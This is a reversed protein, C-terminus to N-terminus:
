ASILVKKKHAYFRLLEYYEFRKIPPLITFIVKGGAERASIEVSRSIKDIEEISLQDIHRALSMTVIEFLPYYINEAGLLASIQTEDIYTQIVRANQSIDQINQIVGDNDRAFTFVLAGAKIKNELSGSERAPDFSIVEIKKLFDGYKSDRKLDDIVDFIAIAKKAYGGGLCSDFALVVEPGERYFSFIADTFANALAEDGSAELLRCQIEVKAEKELGPMPGTMGTATNKIEAPLRIEGSGSKGTSGIEGEDKIGPSVSLITQRLDVRCEDRIYITEYKSERDDCAKIIKMFLAEVSHATGAIGGTMMATIIYGDEATKQYVPSGCFGNVIGSGLLLYRLNGNEISHMIGVQNIGTWPVFFGAKGDHPASFQRPTLYSQRANESIETIEIIAVDPTEGKLLAVVRGRGIMKGIPGAHNRLEIEADPDFINHASTMLYKGNIPIANSPLSNEGTFCRISYFSEPAIDAEQAGLSDWDIASIADIISRRHGADQTMYEISDAAIEPTFVGLISAMISLEMTERSVGKVLLRHIKRWFDKREQLYIEASYKKEPIRPKATEKDEPEQDATSVSDRRTESIDPTVRAIANVDEPEGNTQQITKIYQLNLFSHLATAASFIILFAPPNSAYFLFAAANLLAVFFVGRWRPPSHITKAGLWAPLYHAVFFTSWVLGTILISSFIMNETGAAYILGANLAGFVAQEIWSQLKLSVGGKVLLGSLAPIMAADPGSGPRTGAPYLGDIIGYHLPDMGYPAKYPDRDDIRYIEIKQAETAGKWQPLNASAPIDPQLGAPDSSYQCERTVTVCDCHKGARHRELPLLNWGKSDRVTNIDEVMGNIWPAPDADTYKIEMVAIGPWARVFGINDELRDKPNLLLPSMEGDIEQWAIMRSRVNMDITIRLYELDRDHIKVEPEEGPHRHKSELIQRLYVGCSSDLITQWYNAPHGNGGDEILHEYRAALTILHRKLMDRREERGEDENGINQYALREYSVQENLKLKYDRVYSCFEILGARAARNDRQKESLWNYDVVGDHGKEAFALVKPICEQRLHCKFKWMRTDLRNKIELNVVKSEDLNDYWRIRAKFRYERYCDERAFYTLFAPQTTLWDSAEQFPHRIFFKWGKWRYGPTELYGSHNGYVDHTPNDEDAVMGRAEMMDRVFEPENNAIMLRYKDERRFVEFKDNEEAARAIGVRTFHREAFAAVMWFILAATFISFTFISKLSMLYALAYMTVAFKFLNIVVIMPPQKARYRVVASLFRGFPQIVRNFRRIFIGLIFSIAMFYIAGEALFLAVNEAAPWFESWSAAGPVAPALFALGLGISFISIRNLRKIWGRIRAHGNDAGPFLRNTIRLISEMLGSAVIALISVTLGLIVTQSPLSGSLSVILYAALLAPVKGMLRNILYEDGERTKFCKKIATEILAALLMIVIFYAVVNTSHYNGTLFTFCKVAKDYMFDFIPHHRAAYFLPASAVITWKWINFLAGLAASQPRESERIRVKLNRPLVPAVIRMYLRRASFGLNFAGIIQNPIAIVAVAIVYVSLLAIFESRAFISPVGLFLTSALAGLGLALPMFKREIIRKRIPNLKRIFLKFINEFGTAAVTTWAIWSLVTVGPHDSAFSAYLDKAYPLISASTMASLVCEIGMLCAIGISIRTLVFLRPFNTCFRTMIFDYVVPSTVIINVRPSFLGMIYAYANVILSLIILAIISLEAAQMVHLSTVGASFGIFSGAAAPLVPTIWYVTVAVLSVTVLRSVAAKISIWIRAARDDDKTLIQKEKLLPTKKLVFVFLASSVILIKASWIALDIFPKKAEPTLAYIGKVFEIVGSLTFGAGHPAPVGVFVPMVFYLLALACAAIGWWKFIRRVGESHEMAVSSHRVKVEGGPFLVRARLVITDTFFGAIYSSAITLPYTIFVAITVIIKALEIASAWSALPPVGLILSAFFISLPLSIVINQWCTFTQIRGASEKPMHRPLVLLCCVAIMSIVTVLSFALVDIAFYVQSLSGIWASIPGLSHGSLAIGWKKCAFAALLLVLVMGSTLIMPGMGGLKPLSKARGSGLNNEAPHPPGVHRPDLNRKMKSNFGYYARKIASWIIAAISLIFAMPGVPSRSFDSAPSKTKQIHAVVTGPAIEEGEAIIIERSVPRNVRFRYSVKDNFTIWGDEPATITCNAIQEEKSAVGSRLMAINERVHQEVKRDRAINVTLVNETEIRGTEILKLSGKAENLVIRAMELEYLTRNLRILASNWAAKLSELEAPTTASITTASIKVLSNYEDEKIGAADRDIRENSEMNRVLAEAGLVIANAQALMAPYESERYRNLREEAERVSLALKDALAEAELLVGEMERKSTELDAPDLQLIPEGKKVHEKDKKIKKMVRPGIPGTWDYEGTWASARVPVGKDAMAAPRLIGAMPDETFFRMFPQGNNVVCGPGVHTDKAAHEVPLGAVVRTFESSYAVWGDAPAHIESNKMNTTIVGITAQCLNINAQAAKMDERARALGGELSALDQGALGETLLAGNEPGEKALAADALERAARQVTIEESELLARIADVGSESLIGAGRLREARAYDKDALAINDGALGLSEEAHGLMIAGSDSKEALTKTVEAKRAEIIKRQKELGDIRSEADIMARVSVNIQRQLEAIMNEQDQVGAKALLQGEKVPGEPALEILMRGQDGRRGTATPAIDFAIPVGKGPAEVGSASGPERGIDPMIKLVPGPPLTGGEILRPVRDVSIGLSNLPMDYILSVKGDSPATIRCKNREEEYFEIERRGTAGNAEALLLRERATEIEQNLTAIVSAHESEVRKVEAERSIMRARALGERHLATDVGMFATNYAAELEEVKTKTIGPDGKVKKLKERAIDAIREASLRANKRADYVKQSRTLDDKAQELLGPYVSDEYSKLREGAEKLLSDAELLLRASENHRAQAERLLKELVSTELDALPQGKTVHDGDQVYVIRVTPRIIGSGSDYGISVDAGVLASNDAPGDAKGRAASIGPDKVRLFEQGYMITIGPRIDATRPAPRFFDGVVDVHEAVGDRPAYVTCNEINARIADLMELQLALRKNDHGIDGAAAAIMGELEEARKIKMKKRRVLKARDQELSERATAIEIQAEYQARLADNIRLFIGDLETKVPVGKGLYARLRSEETRLLAINRGALEAKKKAAEVAEEDSTVEKRAAEIDIDCQGKFIKLQEEAAQKAEEAGKISLRTRNCLTSQRDLEMEYATSDFRAIVDPSEGNDKHARVSSGDPVVYILTPGYGVINYLRLPKIRCRVSGEQGAPSEGLVPSPSKKTTDDTVRVFPVGPHLIAGQGLILEEQVPNIDIGMFAIRRRNLYSVTGSEGAKIECKGIQEDYFKVEREDISQSEKALGLYKEAARVERDHAAFTAEHAGKVRAVNAEAVAKMYLALELESKAAEEETLAASYAAQLDGIRRPQANNGRAEEFNKHLFVTKERAANLEKERAICVSREKELVAEADQLLAPYTIDRYTSRAEEAKQVSSEARAVDKRSRQLDAEKNRREMTLVSDDLRAVTTVGAIVQTHEPVIYVIPLGVDGQRSSMGTMADSRVLGRDEAEGAPRARGSILAPDVVRLIEQGQVVSVGEEIRTETASQIPVPGASVGVVHSLIVVGDRPAYLTCNKRIMKILADYELHEPQRDLKEGAISEIDDLILGRRKEFAKEDIRAGEIIGELRGTEDAMRDDLLKLEAEGEDIMQRARSHRYESLKQMKEANLRSELAKDYENQTVVGKEKLAKFEEERDKALGAGDKAASVIGILDKGSKMKSIAAKKDEDYQRKATKLEEAALDGLKKAEELLRTTEHYLKLARGLEMERASPDLMGIEQGKRVEARDDILDTIRFRGNGNVSKITVVVPEGNQLAENRGTFDKVLTEVDRYPRTLLDATSSGSGSPEQAPQIRLRPSAEPEAPAVGSQPKHEPIAEVPKPTEPAPVPKPTTVAPPTAGEGSDQFDGIDHSVKDIEQRNARTKGPTAELLGRKDGPEFVTIDDQGHSGSKAAAIARAAQDYLTITEGDKSLGDPIIIMNGNFRALDAASIDKGSWIIRIEQGPKLYADRGNACARLNRRAGGSNSVSFDAINVTNRSINKLHIFDVPDQKGPDREGTQRPLGGPATNEIHAAIATIAIPSDASILQQNISLSDIDAQSVTAAPTPMTEAPKPTEPAPSLVHAQTEPTEQKQSEHPAQSVSAPIEEPASATSLPNSVATKTAITVPPVAHADPSIQIAPAAPKESESPLQVTSQKKIETFQAKSVKLTKTEGAGIIISENLNNVTIDGALELILRGGASITINIDSNLITIMAPKVGTNTVEMLGDNVIRIHTPDILGNVDSRQTGSGTAEYTSGDDLVTLNGSGESNRVSNIKAGEKPQSKEPASAAATSGDTRAADPKAPQVTPTTGSVTEDPIPLAPKIDPLTESRAPRDPRNGTADLNNLMEAARAYSVSLRINAEFYRTKLDEYEELFRRVGRASGMGSIVHDSIIRETVYRVADEKGSLAKELEGTEKLATELDNIILDWEYQIEKLRQAEADERRDHQLRAIKARVSRGSGLIRMSAEYVMNIGGSGANWEGEVSLSPLLTWWAQREQLKAREQLNRLHQVTNDAGMDANENFTRDLAKIDVGLVDQPALFSPDLRVGTEIEIFEVLRAIAETFAMKAETASLKARGLEINAFELEHDSKLGADGSRRAADALETLGNVKAQEADVKMSAIAYAGYLDIARRRASEISIESLIKKDEVDLGAIAPGHIDPEFTLTTKASFTTSDVTPMLDTRGRYYGAGAGLENRFMHAFSALNQAEEAIAIDIRALEDELREGVGAIAGDLGVAGATAEEKPIETEKVGLAYLVIKASSLSSEAEDRANEIRVREAKLRELMDPAPLDDRNRALNEIAKVCRGLEANAIAVQSKALHYLRVASEKQKAALKEAGQLMTDKRGSEQMAINGLIERKEQRAHAGSIFGPLNFWGLAKWDLWYDPLKPYVTGMTGALAFPSVSFEIGFSHGEKRIAVSTLAYARRDAKHMGIKLAEGGTRYDILIDGARRGERDALSVRYLRTIDGSRMNGTDIDKGDRGIVRVKGAKGITVRSGEPIGPVDSKIVMGDEFAFEGIYKNDSSKVAACHIEKKGYVRLGTLVNNAALENKPGVAVISGEPVLEKEGSSVVYNGELMSKLSGLVAEIDKDTINDLRLIDSGKLAMSDRLDRRAIKLQLTEFKQELLIERKRRELRKIQTDSSDYGRRAKLLNIEEEMNKALRALNGIKEMASHINLLQRAKEVQSDREELNAKIRASKIFERGAERQYKAGPTYLPIELSIRLETNKTFNAATLDKSSANFIDGNFGASANVSVIPRFAQSSPRGKNQAIEIDRQAPAFKGREREVRLMEALSPEQISYPAKDLAATIIPIKATMIRMKQDHTAAGSINLVPVLASIRDIISAMEKEDKLRGKVFNSLTRKGNEFEAIADRLARRKVTPLNDRIYSALKDISIRDEPSSGAASVMFAKVEAIYDEVQRESAPMVLEPLYATVRPWMDKVEIYREHKLHTRSEELLGLIKNLGNKDYKALNMRTTGHLKKLDLEAGVLASGLAQRRLGADKAERLGRLLASMNELGAGYRTEIDKATAAAQSAIQAGEAHAARLTDATDRARGSAAALMREILRYEEIAKLYILTAEREEKARGGDGFVARSRIGIFSPNRLGEYITRRFIDERWLVKVDFRNLGLMKFFRSPVLAEYSAIEEAKNALLLSSYQTIDADAGALIRGLSKESCASQDLDLEVGDTWGMIYRLQDEGDLLVKNQRSLDSQATAIDFDLALHEEASLSMTAAGKRLSNLSGLYQELIEKNKKAAVVEGYLRVLGGVVNIKAQEAIIRAQRKAGEKSGVDRSRDSDYLSVGMESILRLEPKQLKEIRDLLERLKKEGRRVDELGKKIRGEKSAIEASEQKIRKQHRNIDGKNDYVQQQNNAIQRRDDAIKQNDIGIQANEQDIRAQDGNQIATALEAQDNALDAQHRELEGQHRAVDAQDEQLAVTNRGVGDFAEARQGRDNALAAEDEALERRADALEIATARAKNIASDLASSGANGDTSGYRLIIDWFFRGSGALEQKLAAVVLRQEAQRIEYGGRLVSNIMGSLNQKVTVGPAIAEVLAKLGPEATFIRVDRDPQELSWEKGLEQLFSYEERPSLPASTWISFEVRNPDAIGAPKAIPVATPTSWGPDINQGRYIYAAPQAFSAALQSAMWVPSRGANVFVKQKKAGPVPSISNVYQAWTKSLIERNSELLHVQPQQNVWAVAPGLDPGLNYVRVNIVGAKPAEKRPICLDVIRNGTYPGSDERMGLMIFEGRKGLGKVDQMLQVAVYDGFHFAPDTLAVTWGETNNNGSPNKASSKLGPDISPGYFSGKGKLDALVKVPAFPPNYSVVEVPKPPLVQASYPESENDYAGLDKEPLEPEPLLPLILSDATESTDGDDNVAKATPTAQSHTSRGAAKAAPHRDAPVRPISLPKLGRLDKATPHPLDGHFTDLNHAGSHDLVSHGDYAGQDAHGHGVISCSASLLMVAISLLMISFSALMSVRAYAPMRSLGPIYVSELARELNDKLSDILGASEFKRNSHPRADPYLTKLAHFCDKFAKKDKGFVLGGEGPEIGILAIVFQDPAAEFIRADEHYYSNYKLGSAYKVVADFAERRAEDSAAEVYSKVARLGLRSVNRTRRENELLRTLADRNFRYLKDMAEGLLDQARPDAVSLRFLFFAALEKEEQSKSHRITNLHAEIANPVIKDKAMRITGAELPMGYRYLLAAKDIITEKPVAALYAKLPLGLGRLQYIRERLSAPSLERSFIRKFHTPLFTKMIEEDDMGAKKLVMVKYLYDLIAEKIDPNTVAKAIVSDPNDIFDLILRMSSGSIKINPLKTFDVGTERLMLAFEKRIRDERALGFRQIFAANIRTIMKRFAKTLIKFGSEKSDRVDNKEGTAANGEHPEAVASLDEKLAEKETAPGAPLVSEQPMIAEHARGAVPEEHSIVDAKKEGKIRIDIIENKDNVVAEYAWYIRKKLVESKDGIAFPIVWSAGEQRKGNEPNKRNKRLNFVISINPNLKRDFDHDFFRGEFAGVDRVKILIYELSMRIKNELLLAPNSIPNTFSQTQLNNPRSQWSFGEAQAIEESLLTVVLLAAILKMHWKSLINM